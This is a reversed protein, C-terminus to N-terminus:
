KIEKKFNQNEEFQPVEENILCLRVSHILSM